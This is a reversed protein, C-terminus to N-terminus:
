RGFGLYAAIFLVCVGVVTALIVVALKATRQQKMVRISHRIEEDAPADEHHMYGQSM